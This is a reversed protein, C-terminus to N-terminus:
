KIEKKLQEIFIDLWNRARQASELHRKEMHKGFSTAFWSPEYKTALESTHGILWGCMQMTRASFKERMTETFHSTAEKMEKDSEAAMSNMRNTVASRLINATIPKNMQRATEAAEMVVSRLTEPQDKLPALERAQSESMGMAIKHTAVNEFHEKNDGIPSLLNVVKAADVLRYAHAREMGWRDRCYAEFTDFQERYLRSDRIEALANGVETFTNLGTKIVAECEVLRSREVASINQIATIM